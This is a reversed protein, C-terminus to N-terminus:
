RGLLLECSSSHAKGLIPENGPVFSLNRFITSVAIARRGLADQSETVLNLSAQDPQYNEEELVPEAWRARVAAADRLILGTRRRLSAVPDDENDGGGVTVREGEDVDCEKETKVASTTTEESTALSTQKKDAANDCRQQSEAKDDDNHPSLRDEASLSLSLGSPDTTTTAVASQKVSGCSGGGASLKDTSTTLTEDSGNVTKELSSSVSKTESKNNSETTPKAATAVASNDEVKM